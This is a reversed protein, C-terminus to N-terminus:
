NLETVHLASLNYKFKSSSLASWYVTAGTQYRVRANVTTSASLPIGGSYTSAAPNLEGGYLRPDTGDLTYYITGGVANPNTMTLVFGNDINGGYKSYVPANFVTGNALKPYLNWAALQEFVIQTRTKPTANVFNNMMNDFAALWTNKTYPVGVKSDGWRASEAIVALDIEAKRKNILATVAAPTLVGGDFFQARVKDAVRLQMEPVNWIQQFIYQPNAKDFTVGASWGQGPSPGLRNGLSSTNTTNWPLLTHESDHHVCSFGRSGDRPRTCYFNNPSANGLFNSIPA